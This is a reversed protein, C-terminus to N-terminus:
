QAKKSFVFTESPLTIIYRWVFKTEDPGDHMAESSIIYSNQYSIIGANYSGRPEHSLIWDKVSQEHGIVWDKNTAGESWRQVEAHTRQIAESRDTKKFVDAQVYYFGNTGYEAIVSVVREEIKRGDPLVLTLFVKGFKDSVEFNWHPPQIGSEDKMWVATKPIGSKDLPKTLDILTPQKALTAHVWNFGFYSLIIIGPVLLIYGFKKKKNVLIAGVITACIAFVTICIVVVLILFGILIAVAGGELGM